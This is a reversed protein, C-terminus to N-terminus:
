GLILETDEGPIGMRLGVLIRMSVSSCRFFRSASSSAFSRSLVGELASASSFTLGSFVAEDAVM